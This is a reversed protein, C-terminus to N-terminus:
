GSSLKHIQPPQTQSAGTGPHICFPAKLLHNLKRSVETDIRPYMYQIKLDEIADAHREM